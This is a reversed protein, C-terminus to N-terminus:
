TNTKREKERALEKIKEIVPKMKADWSLNQEAYKRMEMSYNPHEKILSEYWKIVQNIDVPTDDKPIRYVFPFTEPFDQDESAIVFPIGRACYERNKLASDAYLGKRHNGLSGFAIDCEDVVKDLEEGTKTGHFIVYSNLGLENVLKKLEPLADGEGVCHYYVPKSPNSKYYECMGRIIRDYGHWFSVNAVSVFHLDGFKRERPRQIKISSCDIGNTTQINQIGFIYPENSPSYVFDVYKKFMRGYFKDLSLKLFSYFSTKLEKHYPYTPVDLIIHIGRHKLEKLARILLQDALVFRFIIVDHKYLDVVQEFLTSLLGKRRKYINLLNLDVTTKPIEFTAVRKKDIELEVTEKRNFCVLAVDYGSKRFTNEISHLKKFVGISRPDNKDMWTVYLVKGESM